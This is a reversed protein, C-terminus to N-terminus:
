DEEPGVKAAGEVRINLAAAMATTQFIGTAQSRAVAM